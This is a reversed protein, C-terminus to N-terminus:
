RAARPHAVPATKRVRPTAAKYAALAAEAASARTEARLQAKTAAALEAKLSRVAEAHRSALGKAEARERKLEERARDIETAARDEIHRTHTQLAERESAAAARETEAQQASAHHRALAADLRSSFAQQDAQLAAVQRQLDGNRQDSMVLAAHAGALEGEATALKTELAARATRESEAMAESQAMLDALAAREPAVLAEAHMQGAGVAVDWAHAFAEAVADPVAPLALRQAMRKAAQTWWAELLQGVRAPSGRGLEARVREYTPREGRALVADAAAFVEHEQVGVGM